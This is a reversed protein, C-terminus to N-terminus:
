RGGGKGGLIMKGGSGGATDADGRVAAFSAPAPVPLGHSRGKGRKSRRERGKEKGTEKERERALRRAEEGQTRRSEADWWEQFAQEQQIEQLSSKAVAGKVAELQQEEQNIIDKM